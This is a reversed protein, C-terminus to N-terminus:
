KLYMSPRNVTNINYRPLNYLGNSIDAPAAVTTLSIAFHEKIFDSAWDDTRGQPYAFLLVKQGLNAEIEDISLQLDPLIREDYEEETEEPRHQIGYTNYEESYAHSKYTHSGFEVLGSDAMERCMDWSLWHTPDYSQRSVILSIVTKAGFEQLIPYAIEYNSTYGDDMTLMVAKEPLEKGAVLESPLVFSYGNDVLWQLDKRFSSVTTTWPDCETNDEVFDHYMLVYM